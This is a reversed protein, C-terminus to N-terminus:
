PPRPCCIAHTALSSGLRAHTLHLSAVFSRRLRGTTSSHPRRRLLDRANGSPLGTSHTLHLSAVFLSAPPRVTTSTRRARRQNQPHFDREFGSSPISRSLCSCWGSSIRHHVRSPTHSPLRSRFVM